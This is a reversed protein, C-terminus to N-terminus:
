ILDVGTSSLWLRLESDLCQSLSGVLAKLSATWKTSLPVLNRNLRNTKVGSPRSWIILGKFISIVTLRSLRQEFLNEISSKSCLSYTVCYIKWHIGQVKGTRLYLQQM